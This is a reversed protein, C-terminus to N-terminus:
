TRLVRVHQTSVGSPSFSMVGNGGEPQTFIGGGGGGGSSGHQSMQPFFATHSCGM